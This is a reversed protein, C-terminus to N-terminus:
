NNISADGESGNEKRELGESLFEAVILSMSKREKFAQTRLQEYLSRPIKTTLKATEVDYLNQRKVLEM